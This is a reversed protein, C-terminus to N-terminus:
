LRMKILKNQCPYVIESYYQLNEAEVYMEFSDLYM